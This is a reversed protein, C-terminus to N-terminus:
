WRKRIREPAYIKESKGQWRSEACIIKLVQKYDPEERRYQPSVADRRLMTETSGVDVDIDAGFVLGRPAFRLRDGSKYPCSGSPSGSSSPIHNGLFASM